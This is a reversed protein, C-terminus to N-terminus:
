NPSFHSSPPGSNQGVIESNRGCANGSGKAQLNNANFPYLLNHDVNSDLIHVIVHIIIKYIYICVYMCVHMCAHMCAHMCTCACM